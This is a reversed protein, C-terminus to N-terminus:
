SNADNRLTKRVGRKLNREDPKILGFYKARYAYLSGSFGFKSAMAAWSYNESIRAELWEKNWCLPLGRSELEQVSWVKGPNQRHIHGIETSSLGKATKAQIPSRTKICELIYTPVTMGVIAAEARLVALLDLPVPVIVNEKKKGRLQLSLVQAPSMAADNRTYHAWRRFRYADETISQYPFIIICDEEVIAHKPSRDIEGARLVSLEPGASIQPAFHGTGGRLIHRGATDTQVVIRDDAVTVRMSDGIQAGIARTAETQLLLKLPQGLRNPAIRAFTEV